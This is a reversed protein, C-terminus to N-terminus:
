GNENSGDIIAMIEKAREDTYGPLAVLEEIDIHKFFERPTKYEELLMVARKKATYPLVSLLAVQWQSKNFKVKGMKPLLETDDKSVSEYVYELYQATGFTSGTPIISGIGQQGASSRKTIDFNKLILNKPISRRYAEKYIDGEVLTAYIRYNNSMEVRQNHYHGSLISSLMDGASKREFCVYGIVYDGVSDEQKEFPELPIKKERLLEPVTVSDKRATSRKEENKSYRIKLM